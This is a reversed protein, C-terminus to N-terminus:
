QRPEPPMGTEDDVEPAHTKGLIVWGAGRSAKDAADWTEFADHSRAAAATVSQMRRTFEEGTVEGTRWRRIEASLRGTRTIQWGVVADKLTFTADGLAALPARDGNRKGALMAIETAAQLDTDMPGDVLLRNRADPMWQHRATCWEDLDDARRALAGVVGALAEDLRARYRSRNEVVITVIVGAVGILAAVITGAIAAWDKPQLDSAWHWFGPASATAYLM